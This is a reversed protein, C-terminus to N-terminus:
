SQSIIDQAQARVAPDADGAALELATRAGPNSRVFFLARVALIRVQPNVDGAILEALPGVMDDDAGFQEVAEVACFRVTPDPDTLLPELTELAEPNQADGLLRAARARVNAPEQRLLIALARYVEPADISGIVGLLGPPWLGMPDPGTANRILELAEQASPAPM